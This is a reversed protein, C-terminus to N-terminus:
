DFTVASAVGAVLHEHAVARVDFRAGAALDLTARPEGLVVALSPRLSAVHINVMDHRQLIRPLHTVVAAAVVVGATDTTHSSSVLQLWDPADSHVVSSRSANALSRSM